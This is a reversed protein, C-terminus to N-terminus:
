NVPQPLSFETDEFISLARCRTALEFFREYELAFDLLIDGAGICTEHTLEGNSVFGNREAKQDAGGFRQADQQDV